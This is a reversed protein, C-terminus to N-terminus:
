SFFPLFHFSLLPVLRKFVLSQCPMGLCRVAKPGHDNRMRFAPLFGQTFLASIDSARMALRVKIWTKAKSQSPSCNDSSVTAISFVGGKFPDEVSRVPFSGLFSFHIYVLCVEVSPIRAQQRCM